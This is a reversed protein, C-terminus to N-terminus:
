RGFWGAATGVLVPVADGPCYRAGGDADARWHCQERGRLAPRPATRLLASCHPARFGELLREFSDHKNGWPKVLNPVPREM